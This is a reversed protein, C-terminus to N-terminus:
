TVGLMKIKLYLHTYKRATYLISKNPCFNFPLTYIGLETPEYQTKSLGANGKRRELMEKKRKNPMEM